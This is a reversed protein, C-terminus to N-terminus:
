GHLPLQGKVEQVSHPLIHGHLSGDTQLQRGGLLLGISEPVGEQLVGSAEVGHGSVAPLMPFLVPDLEVLGGVVRQPDLM